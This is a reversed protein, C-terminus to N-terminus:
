SEQGEREKGARGKGEKEWGARGDEGKEKGEMGKREERERSKGVKGQEIWDLGTGDQWTFPFCRPTLCLYSCANQM